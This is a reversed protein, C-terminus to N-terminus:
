RNLLRAIVSYYSERPHIKLEELQGKLKDPVWINSGGGQTAEKNWFYTKENIM